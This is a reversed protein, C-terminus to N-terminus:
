QFRLTKVPSVTSILFSPVILFLLTILLCGTNLALISGFDWHVPAYSLFYDEEALQILRFRDQVFALGLGLINGWLLGRAVIYSAQILFIQQVLKSKAGLAKLTGIMKTRELILILLATITNIIAVIIMLVLIVTENIDQLDLWDFIGPDKERMTEAYIELPLEFELLYAKFVDMDELDDLFVEFGSVQDEKWNLVQQIKRMDALAFKRDYDALGTKYIGGVKFKRRLQEGNTVFYILLPDGLKLNLRDATVRSIIIDSSITSDSRPFPQGEELYTQLFNWDFEAGVGKVIMGEMEEGAKIIGPKLVFSQIHRIGGKTYAERYYSREPFFPIQVPKQWTVPGVSDLGPFFPQNVSIPYSELSHDVRAHMLHIHGWFGFIKNRIEVKFGGILATTLLMVAVSLAIALIAIRIILSTFRGEGKSSAVRNAIFFAFKM